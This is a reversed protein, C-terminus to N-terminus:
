GPQGDGEGTHAPRKGLKAMQWRGGAGLAHRGERYAEELNGEIVDTLDGLMAVRRRAIKSMVREVRDSTRM